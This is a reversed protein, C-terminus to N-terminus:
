SSINFIRVDMNLYLLPRKYVVCFLPGTCVWTTYSMFGKPVFVNPVFPQSVVSLQESCFYTCLLQQSVTFNKHLCTQVSLSETTDCSIIQIVFMTYFANCILQESGFSETCYFSYYPPSWLTLCFFRVKHLWIHRSPKLNSRYLPSGFSSCLSTKSKSHWMNTSSANMISFSVPLFNTLSYTVSRMWTTMSTYLYTSM